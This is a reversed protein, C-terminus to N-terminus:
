QSDDEKPPLAQTSGRALVQGVPSTVHGYPRRVRRLLFQVFADQTTAAAKRRAYNRRSRARRKAPAPNSEEVRAKAARRREYFSRQAARENTRVIRCPRSRDRRYSARRHRRCRPRQSRHRDANPLLNGVQCLRTVIELLEPDMWRRVAAACELATLIERADRWRQAQEEIGPVILWDPIVGGDDATDFIRRGDPEERGPLEGGVQVSCM